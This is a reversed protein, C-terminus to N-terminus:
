GASKTKPLGVRLGIWLAALLVVLNGIWFWVPHPFARLNLFSVAGFFAAVLVGQRQHATLSLRAALGVAVTFGVLYSLLVLLFAPPPLTAIYQRMMEANRPDFGEPTPYLRNNIQQVVSVLVVGALIGALMALINRLIIKM